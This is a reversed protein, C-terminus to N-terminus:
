VVEFNFILYGLFLREELLLIDYEDTNSGTHIAQSIQLWREVM